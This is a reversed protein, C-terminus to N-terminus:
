KTGAPELSSSVPRRQTRPRLRLALKLVIQLDLCCLCNCLPSGGTVRLLPPPPVFPSDPKWLDSATPIPVAWGGLM